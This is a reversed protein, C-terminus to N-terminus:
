AWKKAWETQQENTLFTWAVVRSTKNGQGM